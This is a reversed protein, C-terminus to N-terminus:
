GHPTEDRADCFMDLQGDDMTKLIAGCRRSCTRQGTWTYAYEAGCVECIRKGRGSGRPKVPPDIWWRMVADADAWQNTKGAATRAKLMRAFTLRYAAAFRPWRAAERRMAKVGALPCMICGVRAFGEDYLSCYALHNAHIFSWVEDETWDIIPHLYIRSGGTRCSEIMQRQARRASEQWRIGTVIMRGQVTREKLHECCYRQARTPPYQKDVILRFMSVDPREIAVDPHHQRVYALLEPPDVTTLNLHADYRVGAMDALTKVVLSDKGGSFALWYGEPPEHERLRAIAMATKDTM